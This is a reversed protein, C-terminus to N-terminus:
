TQSGQRSAAMKPINRLLWACCARKRIIETDPSMYVELRTGQEDFIRLEKKTGSPGSSTNNRPYSARRGDNINMNRCTPFDPHHDYHEHVVAHGTTIYLHWDDPHARITDTDIYAFGWESIYHPYKSGRVPHRHIPYVCGEFDVAFIRVNPGKPPWVPSGEKIMIVTLKVTNFADDQANHQVPFSETRVFHQGAGVAVQDLESQTTMRLGFERSAEILKHYSGAPKSALVGNPRLQRAIPQIDVMRWFTQAMDIGANKMRQEDGSAAWLSLITPTHDRPFDPIHEIGQNVLACLDNVDKIFGDRETVEGRGEYLPIGPACISPDM